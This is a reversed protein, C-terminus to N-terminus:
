SSYSYVYFGGLILGFFITKLEKYKKKSPDEM